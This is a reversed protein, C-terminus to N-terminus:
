GISGGTDILRDGMWTYTFHLAILTVLVILTAIAIKVLVPGPLALFARKM